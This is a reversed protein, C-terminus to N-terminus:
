RGCRLCTRLAGVRKRRPGGSEWETGPWACPQIASTASIKPHAAAHIGMKERGPGPKRLSSSQRM